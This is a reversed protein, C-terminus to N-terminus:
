VNVSNQSIYKKKIQIYCLFIYILHCSGLSFTNMTLTVQLYIFHQLSGPLMQPLNSCKSFSGTPKIKSSNKKLFHMRKYRLFTIVHNTHPFHWSKNQFHGLSWLLICIIKLHSAATLIFTKLIYYRNLM